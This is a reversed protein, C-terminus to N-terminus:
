AHNRMGRVRILEQVIENVQDAFHKDASHEGELRMRRIFRFFLDEIMQWDAAKIASYKLLPVIKPQVAFLCEYMANEIRTRGNFDAACWASALHSFSDVVRYDQGTCPAFCKKGLHHQIFGVAQKCIPKEAAM